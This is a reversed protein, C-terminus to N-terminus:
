RAPGDPVSGDKIAKLLLEEANTLHGLAEAVYHYEVNHYSIEEWMKEVYDRVQEVQRRADPLLPYKMGKGETQIVM